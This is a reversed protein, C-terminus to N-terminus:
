QVYPSAPTHFHVSSRWGPMPVIEERAPTPRLMWTLEPKLMTDCGTEERVIDRARAVPDAAAARTLDVGGQTFSARTVVRLNPPGEAFRAMEAPTARTLRYYEEEPILWADLECPFSWGDRHGLRLIFDHALWAHHGAEVGAPETPGNLVTRHVAVRPSNHCHGYPGIFEQTAHWAADARIELGALRRWDTVNLVLAGLEIDLWREVGPKGPEPPPETQIYHSVALDWSVRPCGVDPAHIYVRLEAEDTTVPWVEDHLQVWSM